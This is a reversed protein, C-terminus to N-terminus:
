ASDLLKKGKPAICLLIAYLTYAVAQLTILYYPWPGMYDFFTEDDPKGNLFGYNEGIKWNIAMVIAVYGLSWYIARLFAGKQPVIGMGWVLFVAAVPAGGHQLFFIYFEIEKYDFWLTPMLLGQMTGALGWLYGIEALRQSKTFLAIALLISVVDCLYFPLSNDVVVEWGHAGMGYRFLSLVPDLGVAILLLIGMTYRLRKLSKEAPGSRAYRTVIIATILTVLIALNHPAAFPQFDRQMLLNM